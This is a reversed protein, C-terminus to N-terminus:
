FLVGVKKDDKVNKSINFGAYVLNTWKESTSPVAYPTPDVLGHTAQLNMSPPVAPVKQHYRHYFCIVADCFVSRIWIYYSKFLM